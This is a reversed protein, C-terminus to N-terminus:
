AGKPKLNRGAPFKKRGGQNRELYESVARRATRDSVAPYPRAPEDVDPAPSVAAPVNLFRDWERWAAQVRVSTGRRTEWFASAKGALRFKLGCDAVHGAAILRALGSRIEAPTFVAHNLFDGASIIGVLDGGTRGQALAIAHLLWSDSRRFAPHKM